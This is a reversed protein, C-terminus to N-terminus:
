KSTLANWIILKGGQSCSLINYLNSKPSWSSGTTKGFHGYLTRRLQIRNHKQYKEKIKNMFENNKNESLNKMVNQDNNKLKYKSLYQRLKKIQQQCKDFPERLKDDQLLRLM